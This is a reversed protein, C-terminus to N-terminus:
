RKAHLPMKEQHLYDALKQAAESNERFNRTTYDDYDVPEQNENVALQKALDDFLRQKDARPLAKVLPMLEAFSM